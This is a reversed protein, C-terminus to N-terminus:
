WGTLFNGANKLGSYKDGKDRVHTWLWAMNRLLRKTQYKGVLVRFMVREEWM